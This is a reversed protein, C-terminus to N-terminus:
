PQRTQRIARLARAAEEILNLLLIESQQAVVVTEGGVQGCLDVRGNIERLWVHGQITKEDAAM